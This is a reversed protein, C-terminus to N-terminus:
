PMKNVLIWITSNDEVSIEMWGGVVGKCCNSAAQIVGLALPEGGSLSQRGSEDDRGVRLTVCRWLLVVQHRVLRPRFPLKRKDHCDRSTRWEFPTYYKSLPISSTTNDIYFADDSFWTESYWFLQIPQSMSRGFNPRALCEETQVKLSIVQTISRSVLCNSHVSIYTGWICQNCCPFWSWDGANSIM